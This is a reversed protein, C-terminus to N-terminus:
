DELLFDFVAISVLLFVMDYLGLLGVWKGLEHPTQSGRFLPETAQAGASAISLPRLGKGYM